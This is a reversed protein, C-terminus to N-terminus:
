ANLLLFSVNSSIGNEFTVTAELGNQTQMVKYSVIPVTSAIISAFRSNAISTAQGSNMRLTVIGGAFNDTISLGKLVQQLEAITSNYHSFFEGLESKVEESLKTFDFAPRTFKM